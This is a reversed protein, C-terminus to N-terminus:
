TTWTQVLEFPEAPPLPKPEPRCAADILAIPNNTDTWDFIEAWEAVKYGWPDILNGRGTERLSVGSPRGTRVNFDRIARCLERISFKRLETNEDRLRENEEILEPNGLDQTRQDVAKQLEAKLREIEARMADIDPLEEGSPIIILRDGPSLNRNTVFGRVTESSWSGCGEEFLCKGEMGNFIEFVRYAM